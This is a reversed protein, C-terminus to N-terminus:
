LPPFFHVAYTRVIDGCLHGKPGWRSRVREARNRVGSARLAPSCRTQRRRSKKAQHSSEGEGREALCGVLGLRGRKRGGRKPANPRLLLRLLSLSLSLPLSLSLSLSLKRDGHFYIIRPHFFLAIRQEGVALFSRRGLCVLPFIRPSRYVIDDAIYKALPLNPWMAAAAAAAAAATFLPLPPFEAREASSAFSRGRRRRRRGRSLASFM